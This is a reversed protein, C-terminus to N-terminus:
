LALSFETNVPVKQTSRSSTKKELKPRASISPAYQYGSAKTGFMGRLEGAEQFSGRTREGARFGVIDPPGCRKASTVCVASDRLGEDRDNERIGRMDVGIPRAPPPGLSPESLAAVPPDSCSFWASGCRRAWLRARARPAILAGCRARAMYSAQDWGRGGYCGLGRYAGRTGSGVGCEGRVRHAGLRGLQVVFVIDRRCEGM